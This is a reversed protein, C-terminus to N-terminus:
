VSILIAISNNVAKYQEFKLAGWLVFDWKTEYEQQLKRLEVM